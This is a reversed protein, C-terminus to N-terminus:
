FLFAIINGVKATCVPLTKFILLRVPNALLYSFLYYKQIVTIVYM